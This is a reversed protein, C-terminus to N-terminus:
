ITGSFSTSFVFNNYHSFDTCHERVGIKKSNLFVAGMHPCSISSLSLPPYVFLIKMYLKLIIIRYVM